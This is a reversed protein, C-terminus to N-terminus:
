LPLLPTPKNSFDCIQTWFRDEWFPKYHDWIANNPGPPDVFVITERWNTRQDLKTTTTPAPDPGRHDRGWPTGYPIETYTTWHFGRGFKNWFKNAWSQKFPGSDCKPTSFPRCHLRLKVYYKCFFVKPWLCFCFTGTQWDGRKAERNM